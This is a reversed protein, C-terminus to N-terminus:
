KPWVGGRGFKVCDSQPCSRAKQESSDNGSGNTAERLSVALRDSASQKVEGVLALCRIRVGADISTGLKSIFMVAQNVDTAPKQRRIAQQIHRSGPRGYNGPGRKERPDSKGRRVLLSPTGLAFSRDWNPM